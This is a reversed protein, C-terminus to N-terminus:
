LRITPPTSPGEPKVEGTQSDGPNVLQCHRFADEYDIEQAGSRRDATGMTRGSRRIESDFFRWAV